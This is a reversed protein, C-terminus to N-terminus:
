QFARKTTVLFIGPKKEYEQRCDFQTKSAKHANQYFLIIVKINTM